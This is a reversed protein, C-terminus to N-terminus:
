GSEGSFELNEKAKLGIKKLKVSSISEKLENPERPKAGSLAETREEHVLSISRARDNNILDGSPGIFYSIIIFTVYM